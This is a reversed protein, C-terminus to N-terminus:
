AIGTISAATFTQVVNLEFGDAIYSVGLDNCEVKFRKGPIIIGADRLVGEKAKIYLPTLQDMSKEDYSGGDPLFILMYDGLQKEDDFAQISYLNGTFVMNFAM